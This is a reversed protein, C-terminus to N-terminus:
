LSTETIELLDITALSVFLISSFTTFGLLCDSQAPHFTCVSAICVCDATSCYRNEVPTMCTWMGKARRFTCEGSHYRFNLMHWQMGSSPGFLVHTWNSCSMISACSCSLLLLLALHVNAAQPCVKLHTGEHDIEKYCKESSPFCDAFTPNQRFNLKEAQSMPLTHPHIGRSQRRHSRKHATNFRSRGTSPNSRRTWLSLSRSRTPRNWARSNLKILTLCDSQTKSSKICGSQRQLLGSVTLALDCRHADTRACRIQHWSAMSCNIRTWHRCSAQWHVQQFSANAISTYWQLLPWM